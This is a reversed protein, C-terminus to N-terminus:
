DEVEVEFQGFPICTAKPLVAHMSAVGSRNFSHIVNDHGDSGFKDRLYKAAQLGNGEVGPNGYADLFGLDHDLFIFDVPPRGELYSTFESVTRVVKLDPIRKQFWNIRMDSDELLLVKAFKPLCVKFITL